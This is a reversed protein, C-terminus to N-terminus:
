FGSRWTRGLRGHNFPQQQRDAVIQAAKDLVAEMNISRDIESMDLAWSPLAVEEGKTLMTRVPRNSCRKGLGWDNLTTFPIKHEIAAKYQTFKAPLLKLM